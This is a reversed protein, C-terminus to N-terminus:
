IEYFILGEGFIVNCNDDITVSSIASFDEM